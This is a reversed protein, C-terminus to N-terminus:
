ERLADREKKTAENSTSAGEQSTLVKDTLVQNLADEIATRSENEVKLALRLQNSQKKKEKAQRKGKIARELSM